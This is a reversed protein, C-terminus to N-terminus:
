GRRRMRDHDPAPDAVEASDGRQGYIVDVGLVGPRLDLFEFPNDPVGFEAFAEAYVRLVDLPAPIRRQEFRQDPVERLPNGGGRPTLPCLRM